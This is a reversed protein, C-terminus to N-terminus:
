AKEEAVISVVALTMEALKVLEEVPIWEGKSHVDGYGCALIATPLGFGNFINADSAGGAAFLECPRGIKAAARKAVDVVLDGESLKFAACDMKVVVEARGGMEAAADEFAKQMAEAQRDLKGNDLSRAEAYIIAHDCVINTPSEAKFTGINATTESDIRGLPMNAIAKSAITIASVGKEPANGAHAPKGFIEANVMKRAPAQVKLNGVKGGTDLAYGLKAKLKARDVGRAGLLGSEEGATVLFEIDGHPLSNEKLVRIVELMAAVGAKDDSGLVTSGDSVINGDANISPKVGVGPVVTDMHANLFLVPAGSVNGKLYAFVNGAECGSDKASDDEHVNELGLEQFKKLLADAIKREHKTESDIQVLEFLENVLREKNVM